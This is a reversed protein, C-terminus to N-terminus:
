RKESRRTVRELVLGIVVAVISCWALYTTDLLLSPYGPYFGHRFLAIAHLMPNYSLIDRAHPALFDPVLFVGSILVLGRSFVPYIKGWLKFIQTIVLNLIGWGFGLMVIALCGQAVPVIDQPMGDETFFIYIGGFLLIGLLSYDAIRLILHVVIHDLRQEIPFRRGPSEITRSMRRSLYIFFYLAFFGTGYFLVPSGGIVSFQRRALFWWLFSLTGIMLVPELLNVISEMPAYRRNEEERRLLATIIQFYRRFATGILVVDNVFKMGKLTM